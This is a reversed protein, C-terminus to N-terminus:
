LMPISRTALQLTLGWPDRLFALRDGDPMILIEGDVAAGAAVLRARSAEIDEVEFAIHFTFPSMNAFDAIEGVPNNYIEIVSQRDTDTLFQAYPPVTQSRLIHM